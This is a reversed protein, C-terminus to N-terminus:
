CEQRVWNKAEDYGMYWAQRWDSCAGSMDGLKEKSIGRNVYAGIKNDINKSIKLAMNCDSIASYYEKLLYKAYCRSVYSGEHLHDIEIAKDFDLLAKKAGYFNEDKGMKKNGLEMYYDANNAKVKEFFPMFLSVSVILFSALLKRKKM